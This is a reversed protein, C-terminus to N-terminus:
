HEQAVTQVLAPQQIHPTVPTFAQTLLLVALAFLTIISATLLAAITLSVPVSTKM